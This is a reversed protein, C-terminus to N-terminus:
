FVVYGDVNISSVLPSKIKRESSKIDDTVKIAIHLIYLISVLSTENLGIIVELMWLNKYVKRPVREAFCTECSQDLM